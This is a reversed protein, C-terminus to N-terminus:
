SVLEEIETFMILGKLNKSITFLLPKKTCLHLALFHRRGYFMVNYSLFSSEPIQKLHGFRRKGIAHEYM